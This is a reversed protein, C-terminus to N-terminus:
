RLIYHQPFIDKQRQKSVKEITTSAISAPNEKSGQLVAAYCLEEAIDLYQLEALKAAVTLLKDWDGRANTIADVMERPIKPSKRM